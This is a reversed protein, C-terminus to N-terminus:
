KKAAKEKVPIFHHGHLTCGEAGCKVIGQDFQEQTIQAKCTGECVYAIKKM